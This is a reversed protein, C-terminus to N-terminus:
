KYACKGNWRDYERPSMKCGEPCCHMEKDPIGIYDNYDTCFHDAEEESNFERLIYYGSYNDIADQAEDEDMVFAERECAREDDLVYWKM